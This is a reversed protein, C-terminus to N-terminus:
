DDGEALLREFFVNWTEYEGKQERQREHSGDAKQQETSVRVYGAVNM